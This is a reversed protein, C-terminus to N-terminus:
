SVDNKLELRLIYVNAEDQLVYLKLMSGYIFKAQRKADNMAPPVKM